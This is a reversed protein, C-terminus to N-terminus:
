GNWKLSTTQHSGEEPAPRVGNAERPTCEVVRGRCDLSIECCAEFMARMKQRGRQVRSKLGSLSIGLLLAEDKHPLGELEAGL